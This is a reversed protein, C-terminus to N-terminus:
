KLCRAQHQLADVQQVSYDEYGTSWQVRLQDLESKELKKLLSRDIAYTARYTAVGTEPDFVGESVADNYLTLRENNMLKLVLIGAKPLVGFTRRANPDQIRVSLILSGGTPGDTALAATAILHFQGEAMAKRMVPNSYRLLEVPQHERYIKGSFEDKQEVGIGCPRAPPTLLVDSKPDYAAVSLGAEAPQNKDKKNKSLFSKRKSATTDSQAVETTTSDVETPTDDTKKDKKNKSFRGKRTSETSDRQPSEVLVASEDNTPAETTKKKSKKPKPEDTAAALAPNEIQQALTALADLRTLLKPLKKRANLPTSEAVKELEGALEISKNLNQKASREAKTANQQETKLIKLTGASTATDNQAIELAEQAVKKQQFSQNHRSEFFRLVGMSRKFEVQSLVLMQWDTLDSFDTPLDARNAALARFAAVEDPPISDPVQTWASAYGTLLFFLVLLTTGGTRNPHNM